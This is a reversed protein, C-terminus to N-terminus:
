YVILLFIVGRGDVFHKDVDGSICGFTSYIEFGYVRGLDLDM